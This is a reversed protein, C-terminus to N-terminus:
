RLRMDNKASQVGDVARAVGVATSENTATAKRIANNM